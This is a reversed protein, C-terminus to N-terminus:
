ETVEKQLWKDLRKFASPFNRKTFYTDIIKYMDDYDMKIEEFSAKEMKGFVSELLKMTEAMKKTSKKKQRHSGIDQYHLDDWYKPFVISALTSDLYGLQHLLGCSCFPRQASYIECDGYHLLQKRSEVWYRKILIGLKYVESAVQM